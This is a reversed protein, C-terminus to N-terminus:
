DVGVMVDSAKIVAYAAQGAKLGLTEVSENTISATLVAGGVDIELHKLRLFEECAVVADCSDHVDNRSHLGRAATDIAFAQMQELDAVAFYRGEAFEGVGVCHNLGIAAAVDVRGRHGRGFLLRPQMM